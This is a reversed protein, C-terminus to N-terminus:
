VFDYNQNNVVFGNQLFDTGEPQFLTPLSRVGELHPRLLEFRRLALERSAHPIASLEDV